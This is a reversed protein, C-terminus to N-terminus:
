KGKRAKPAKKDLMADIATRADKETKSAYWTGGLKFLIKGHKSTPNHKVTITNGLDKWTETKLKISDCQAQHEPKITWATRDLGVSISMSSASFAIKVDKPREFRGPNLLMGLAENKKVRVEEAFDDGGVIDRARDWWSMDEYVGDKARKAKTPDCGRAYAVVRRQTKPDIKESAIYLGQDHVVFVKESGTSENHKLVRRVDEVNFTATAM